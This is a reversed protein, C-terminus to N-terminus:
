PFYGREYRVRRFPLKGEWRVPPREGGPEGRVGDASRALGKSVPTGPQAISASASEGGERSVMAM